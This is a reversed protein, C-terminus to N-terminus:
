SRTIFSKVKTSRKGNPDDKPYVEVICDAYGIAGEWKTPDLTICKNADKEMPFGFASCFAEVFGGCKPGSTFTHFIMSKAFDGDIVQLIISWSTNGNAPNFRQNKVSVIAVHYIDPPIAEFSAVDSMDVSVPALTNDAM